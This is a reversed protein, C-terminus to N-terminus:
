PVANLKWSYEFFDPKTNAPVPTRRYRNIYPILHSKGGFDEAYWDFLKSIRTRKTDAAVGQPNDNVFAKTLRELDEDLTKGTFPKTALPPCSESACNLAFHIRPENFAPRIIKSELHNFSIKKGSIVIREKDFFNSEGELPGKTPFKKLIESLIGANYANLHWALSVDRDEPPRTNAYFDTVSSLSQIDASNAHWAAYRVGGPTVYKALLEEYVAPSAESAVQLDSAPLQPVTLAAFCGLVLGRILYTRM